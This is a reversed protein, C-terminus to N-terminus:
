LAGKFGPFIRLGASFVINNSSEKENYSVHSAGLSVYPAINNLSLCLDLGYNTGFYLRADDGGFVDKPNTFGLRGELFPIIMLRHIDFPAQTRFVLGYSMAKFSELQENQVFLGIGAFLSQIVLSFDYGNEDIDTNM